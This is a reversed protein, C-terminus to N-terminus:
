SSGGTNGPQGYDGGTGGAGSTGGGQGGPGNCYCNEGNEDCVTEVNAPGGSSGSGGAGPGTIIGGNTGAGGRATCYNGGGCSHQETSGYCTPGNVDTSGLGGGAGGGGAGGTRVMSWIMAGAGGGGGGGGSWINGNTNDITVPLRLELANGGAEGVRAPDVSQNWCCGGSWVGGGRGGDGGKGVIYGNNVIKVTSGSPLTGTDLAPQSTSNSYVKVGSNITLIVGKAAIPNGLATAINYNATDSSIVLNTVSVVPCNTHLGDSLFKYYCGGSSVHLPGQPSNTGIGLNGGFYGGGTTLFSSAWLSGSKTQSTGSISIPSSSNNDTPVSGPATWASVSLVGAGLIIAAIFMKLNKLIEEKTKMLQCSYALLKM